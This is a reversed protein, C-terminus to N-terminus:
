LECVEKASGAAMLAALVERRAHRSVSHLRARIAAARAATRAAILMHRLAVWRLTRMLQYTPAFHVRNTTVQTKVCNPPLEACLLAKVEQREACAGTCLVSLRLVSYLIALPLMNPPPPGASCSCPSRVVPSSMLVCFTVATAAIAFMTFLESPGTPRSL